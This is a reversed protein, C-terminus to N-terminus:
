HHRPSWSSFVYVNHFKLGQLCRTAYTRITDILLRCYAKLSVTTSFVRLFSLQYPMYTFPMIDIILMLSPILVRWGNTDFRNNNFIWIQHSHWPPLTKEELSPPNTHVRWVMYLSIHIYFSNNNLIRAYMTYM